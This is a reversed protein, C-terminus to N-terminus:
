ELLWPLVEAEFASWDTGAKGLTHVCGNLVRFDINVSKSALHHYYHMEEVTVYEDQTGIAVRCQISKIRQISREFPPMKGACDPTIKVGNADEKGKYMEDVVCNTFFKWFPLAGWFLAKRIRKAARNQADDEGQAAFAAGIYCGWCTCLLRIDDDECGLVARQVVELSTEYRLEGSLVGKADRQGPYTLLEIAADPRRSKVWTQVRHYSDSYKPAYPSSAGPLIFVKM